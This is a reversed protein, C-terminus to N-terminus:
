PLALVGLHAPRSAGTVATMSTPVGNIFEHALVAFCLAEKAQPDVGYAKSSCVPVPAVAEALWRMLVPNHVGGGSVILADLQHQPYAFQEIALAVSRVTLATATAILDDAPAGSAVLTEVYDAGFRERGTSKPPPQAFYPDSLLVELLPEHVTGRAAAAGDRDCSAGLFRRALADIVMNAPGTDFAFVEDRAGGAPAVTVNAIGGLNLFARTEVDDAMVAWDFYPILPAGQGGLAVDASRFHGVVPTETLVALTAPDGIQLTAAVWQGAVAYPDPLHHVTHGHSGILDCREVGAEECAEHVASAFLRALLSDLLALERVTSTGAEANRLLLDRLVDDYPRQVFALTEIEIDRGSGRIRALAADVGDASTGSMLGVVTREPADQLTRLLEM